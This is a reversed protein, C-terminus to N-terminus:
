ELDVGAPDFPKDVSVYAQRDSELCRFSAPCNVLPFQFLTQFDEVTSIPM